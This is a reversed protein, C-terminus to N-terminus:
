DQANPHAYQCLYLIAAGDLLCGATDAFFPLAPLSLRVGHFLLILGEVLMVAGFWPIAGRFKFPWVMLVLYWCGILAFAGTAMRFWYDLMPDNPLPQAGLAELARTAVSWSAFVGAISIGWAASAFGLSLRLLRLALPQPFLSGSRLPTRESQLEM